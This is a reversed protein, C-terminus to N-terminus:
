EPDFPLTSCERNQMRVKGKEIHQKNVKIAQKLMTQSFDIGEVVGETTIDAMKNILKGSGFGVELVRDERQLDLIEKVFSNLDVNGNNFIKTMLYRGIIGSPKRAQLSLIRSPILKVIFM